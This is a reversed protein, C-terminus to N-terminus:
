GVSNPEVERIPSDVAYKQLRAWFETVTAYGSISEGKLLWLKWPLYAWCTSMSITSRNTIPLKPLDHPLASTCLVFTPDESNFFVYRCLLLSKPFKISFFCRALPFPKFSANLQLIFMPSRLEKSQRRPVYLLGHCMLASLSGAEFAKPGPYM